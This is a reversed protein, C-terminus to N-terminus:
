SDRELDDSRCFARSPSPVAEWHVTYPRRVGGSGPSTEKSGRRARRTFRLESGFPGPLRSTQRRILRQAIDFIISVPLGKLLVNDWSPREPCTNIVYTLAGPSLELLAHREGLVSCQSRGLIHFGAEIVELDLDLAAVM